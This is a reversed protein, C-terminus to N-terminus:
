GEVVVVGTPLLCAWSCPSPALKNPPTREGAAGIGEGNGDSSGGDEGALLSIADTTDIGVVKTAGEM